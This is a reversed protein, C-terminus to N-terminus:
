GRLELEMSHLRTFKPGAAKRRRREKKTMKVRGPRVFNGRETLRYVEGDHSTIEDGPRLEVAEDVPRLEEPQQQRM